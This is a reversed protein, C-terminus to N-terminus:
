NADGDILNVDSFDIFTVNKLLDKAAIPKTNPRLM